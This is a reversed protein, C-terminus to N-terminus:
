SEWLSPLIMSIPEAAVFRSQAAEHVEVMPQREKPKETGVSVPPKPTQSKYLYETLSRPPPITCAGVTAPCAVRLNKSIPHKSQGGDPICVDGTKTKGDTDSDAETDAETPTDAPTETGTEADADDAALIEADLLRLVLALVSDVLMTTVTEILEVGVKGEIIHM